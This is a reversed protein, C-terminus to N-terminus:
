VNELKKLVRIITSESMHLNNASEERTIDDNRFLLMLIINFELLGM